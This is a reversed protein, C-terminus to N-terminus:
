QGESVAPLTADASSIPRPRKNRRPPTGAPQQKQRTTALSRTGRKFSRRRLAAATDLGTSGIGSPDDAAAELTPAPPPLTLQPTASPPPDDPPAAGSLVLDFVPTLDLYRHHLYAAEAGGGAQALETVFTELTLATFGANTPSLGAPDTLEAAYLRTATRVRRNNHPYLVLLHARPTVEHRVALQALLHLRWFQELMVSRLAPADPNHHLAAERSVEDYRPRHAAAPGACGESYKVEIFMTAPEGDPTVVSLAADFATGDHLYRPDQRSPSTEFRIGTVQHIFAPLLQRFVATALDLDLALPVFLNYNLPESSLLNRHLRDYNVMAGEERFVLSRRVFAHVAPSLFNLGRAADAPQLLSGLQIATTIRSGGPRHLGAPFGQEERWLSQRLRAAARFRTDSPIFCAQERLLSEPVLPAPTLLPTPRPATYVTDSATSGSM